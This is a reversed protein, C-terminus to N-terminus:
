SVMGAPSVRDIADGREHDAGDDWDLFPAAYRQGGPVNRRTPADHQVSPRSQEGRCLEGHQVRPCNLSSEAM